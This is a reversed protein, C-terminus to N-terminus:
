WVINQIASCLIKKYRSNSNVEFYNDSNSRMKIAIGKTTLNEYIFLM